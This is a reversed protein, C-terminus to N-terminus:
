PVIYWRGRQRGMYAPATYAMKMGSPAAAAAHRRDLLHQELM